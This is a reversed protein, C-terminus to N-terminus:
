EAETRLRAKPFYLGVLRREWWQGPARDRGAYTYEYFEARVYTPPKDPFPNKELLGTVSPENELLRELFRSFWPNRQPDDLAAFWM